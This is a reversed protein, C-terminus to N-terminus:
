QKTALVLFIPYSRDEKQATHADVFRINTFGTKQLIAQLHEREFGHHFVGEVDQPHFTGNEKDLDALAVRAGPKLHDAFAQFMKETDEVHHMAMASVILDFKSTLPEELINQCIAEVKGKLEPKELLKALMAVSIDVATIKGVRPALHTSILGTGAGFDMVHMGEQLAANDLIARSIGSSLQRVMEQRDWDSAKEKFLDAKGVEAQGTKM